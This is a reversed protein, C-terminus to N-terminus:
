LALRKAGGEPVDEKVQFVVRNLDRWYYSKDTWASAM